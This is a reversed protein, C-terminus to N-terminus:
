RITALRGHQTRGTPHWSTTSKQYGSSDIKRWPKKWQQSFISINRRTQRFFRWPKRWNPPTEIKKIGQVVGVPGWVQEKSEKQFARTGEWNKRTLGMRISTRKKVWLFIALAGALKPLNWNKKMWSVGGRAGFSTTLGGKPISKDVSSKKKQVGGQSRRDDERAFFIGPSGRTQPSKM